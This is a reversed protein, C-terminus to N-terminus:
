WERPLGSVIVVVALGYVLVAAITMWIAARGWRHRVRRIALGVGLGVALGLMSVVLSGVFSAFVVGRQSSDTGDILVYVFAVISAAVAPIVASAMAKDTSRGAIGEIAGVVVSWAGIL